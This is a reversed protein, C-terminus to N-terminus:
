WYYFWAVLNDLDAFDVTVLGDVCEDWVGADHLLVVCLYLPAQSKSMICQASCGRTVGCSVRLVRFLSSDVRSRYLRRLAPITKSSPSNPSVAAPACKYGKGRDHARARGVLCLSARARASFFDGCKEAYTCHHMARTYLSSNYSLPSVRGHTWRAHELPLTSLSLHATAAERWPIKRHPM